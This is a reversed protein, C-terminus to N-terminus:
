NVQNGLGSRYLTMRPILVQSLKNAQLILTLPNVVSILDMFAKSQLPNGSIGFRINANYDHTEVKFKLNLSYLSVLVFCLFRGVQITNDWGATM